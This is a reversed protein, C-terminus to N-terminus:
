YQKYIGDPGIGLFILDFVVDPGLVRNLCSEYDSALASPDSLLEYNIPYGIANPCKSLIEEQVLKYNSDPNSLPVIREDALFVRWPHNTSLEKGLIKPLSGGSVAMKGPNCRTELNSIFDSLFRSIDSAPLIVIERM